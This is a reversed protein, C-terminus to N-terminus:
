MKEYDKEMKSLVKMTQELRYEMRIRWFLEELSCLEYDDSLRRTCLDAGEIKSAKKVGEVDPFNEALLDDSEEIDAFRSWCHLCVATFKRGDEQITKAIYAPSGEDKHNMDGTNWISYTTMLVPIDIGKKNTLWIMGQSSDAYPSYAIAIIGLLEDNADILAQYGEIAEPTFVDSNRTVTGLLVVGSRQMQKKHIRGLEALIAPRDKEKGLLDIFYYSGREFISSVPQKKDLLNKQHAPSIMSLNGVAMGFSMKTKKIYSDSYYDQEFSNMMWQCNDGDSLYYSVYKKDSDFDITRPDMPTYKLDDQFDPYRLSTLSTNYAWDYPIWSCGYSSIVEDLEGEDSGHDAGYCPANPVLWDLVEHFLKWNTGGEPTRPKRNVNLFFLKNAIAMGKLEACYVHNFVLANNKCHLKFENWSDITTKERADCLMEYGAEDFFDKEAIDVIVADYVHAAVTAYSASELNTNLDVLVYGKIVHRLNGPENAKLAVIEKPTLKGLCKTGMKKLTEESNRYGPYFDRYSMWVGISNTGEGLAKASLGIISEALLNTKLGAEPNLPVVEYPEDYIGEGTMYWYSEPVCDMYPHTFGEKEFSTASSCLSLLTVIISLMCIPRIM